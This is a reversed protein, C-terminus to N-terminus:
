CEARASACFPNQPRPQTGCRTTTVEASALQKAPKLALGVVWSGSAAVESGNKSRWGVGLGSLWRM